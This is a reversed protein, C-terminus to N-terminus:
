QAEVAVVHIEAMNCHKCYRWQYFNANNTSRFPAQYQQWFHAHDQAGPRSTAVMVGISIGVVFIVLGCGILLEPKGKMM